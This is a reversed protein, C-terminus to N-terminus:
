QGGRAMAKAMKREVYRREDAYHPVFPLEVIKPVSKYTGNLQLQEEFLLHRTKRVSRDSAFRRQPLRGREEMYGAAMRIEKAKTGRM